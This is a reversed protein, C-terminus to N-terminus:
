ARSQRAAAYPVGLRESASQFHCCCRLTCGVRASRVGHCEWDHTCALDGLVLVMWSCTGVAPSGLPPGPPPM